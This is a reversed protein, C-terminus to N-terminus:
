QRAAAPARRAVLKIEVLGRDPVLRDIDIATWAPYPGRIYRRKVRKFAEIQAPLDTHFTTMEVVGDFSSGSRKLVDALGRRGAPRVGALRLADASDRLVEGVEAALAAQVLPLPAEALTPAFQVRSIRQRLRQEPGGAPDHWTLEAYGVDNGDGPQFWLEVLVAAAEGAAFEADVAAPTLDALPNAEHGILRYAAVTKPNFHLKLRADRAITAERGSLAELLSRTM